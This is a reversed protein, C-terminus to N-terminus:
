EHHGHGGHDFSSSSHSAGFDHTSHSPAEYPTPEYTSVPEPAPPPSPSVDIALYLLAANQEPPPPLATRQTPPPPRPTPTTVTADERSVWGVVFILAIVGFVIFLLLEISM